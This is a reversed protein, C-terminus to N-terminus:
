VRTLQTRQSPRGSLFNYPFSPFFLSFFFQAYILLSYLLAKNLNAAACMSNWCESFHPLLIRLKLGGTSCVMIKKDSFLYTHITSIHCTTLTPEEPYTHPYTHRHTYTYIFTLDVMCLGYTLM